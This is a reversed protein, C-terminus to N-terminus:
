VEKEECRWTWSPSRRRAHGGVFKYRGSFAVVLARVRDVGLEVRPSGLRGRLQV